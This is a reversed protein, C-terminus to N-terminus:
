LVNLLTREIGILKSCPNHDVCAFSLPLHLYLINLITYAFLNFSVAIHRETM